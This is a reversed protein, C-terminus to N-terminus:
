PQKFIAQMKAALIMDGKVKLKGTAFAVMGSLKGASMALYHDVKMTITVNPKDHQGEGVTLQGDVIAAHWKGGGDGLIDFQYVANVGKAADARFASPMNEFTERVTTV